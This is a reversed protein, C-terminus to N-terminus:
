VLATAVLMMLMAGVALVESGVMDRLIGRRRLGTRPAAHRRPSARLAEAWRAVASPGTRHLTGGRPAAMLRASTTTM